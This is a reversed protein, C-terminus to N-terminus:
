MMSNMTSVCVANPAARRVPVSYASDFLAEAKVTPTCIASKASTGASSTPNNAALTLGLKTLATPTGKKPAYNPDLKLAHSYSKAARAMEGRREYILAQNAWSEAINGNLEIALNFDAFANEDDNLALYSVGRGNYPEPARSSLSIAKSFDDIAKAHDGRLQYILGRNHFARGDTTDLQIARNFDGFAEDIRGAQRYINGRGIYAVDYNPNIKLAM